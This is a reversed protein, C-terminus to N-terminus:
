FINKHNKQAGRTSFRGFVRYFFIRHSFVFPFFNLKRLKKPCFNKVYVKGLFNKITNKFEGQQSDCLFAMFFIEFILFLKKSTWPRTQRQFGCYNRRLLKLDCGHNGDDCPHATPIFTPPPTPDEIHKPHFLISAGGPIDYRAGNEGSGYTKLYRSLHGMKEHLLRM